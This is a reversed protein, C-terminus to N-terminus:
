ITTGNGIKGMEFEATKTVHKMERFTQNIKGVNNRRKERM